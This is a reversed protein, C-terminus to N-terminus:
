IAGELLAEALDAIALQTATKGDEMTQALEALALQTITLPDMPPEVPVPVPPRETLTVGFLVGGKISLNCFSGSAMFDPELNAPVEIWGEPIALPTTSQNAHSGNENPTIKIIM